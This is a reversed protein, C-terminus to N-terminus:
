AGDDEPRSDRARRIALLRDKSLYPRIFLDFDEPPIASFDGYRNEMFDMRTHLKECPFDDCPACNDLGRQIVCPRVPCDSDPSEGPALCGKCGIEELPVDAGVYKLWGDHVRQQDAPGSVNEVYGPCLDCRYGCRAIIEKMDTEKGARDRYSGTNCLALLNPCLEAELEAGPAEGTEDGSDCGLLRCLTLGARALADTLEGASFCSYIVRGGEPGAPPTVGTERIQRVTEPSPDFGEDTLQLILGEKSMVDLAVAERAIRGLNAITEEAASRPHAYFISRMCLCVDYSGSAIGSLDEFTGCILKDVNRAAEPPSRHMAARLFPAAPDLLTVKYGEAALRMGFHGTGSAVDLVTAPPAAANRVFGLVVNTITDGETLLEPSQAAAMCYGVVADLDQRRAWTMCAELDQMLRDHVATPRFSIPMGHVVARRCATLEDSPTGAARCFAERLRENLERLGNTAYEIRPAHPNRRSCLESLDYEDRM